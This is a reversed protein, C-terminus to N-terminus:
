SNLKFAEVYLGYALGIKLCNLVDKFLSNRVQVEPSSSVVRRAYAFRSVAETFFLVFAAAIVDWSADQGATSTVASAVFFGLLLSILILAIRRWPNSFLTEIRVILRDVLTTLRTNQM